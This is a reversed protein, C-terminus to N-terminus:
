VFYQNRKGKKHDELHSELDEELVYLMPCQDCAYNAGALHQRMHAKMESGESFKGGCTLCMKECGSGEGRAAHERNYHLWLSLETKFTKLHKTNKDKNDEGRKERCYECTIAKEKSHKTKIHRTLNSLKSFSGHCFHCIFNQTSSPIETTTDAAIQMPECDSTQPENASEADNDDNDDDEEVAIERNYHVTNLHELLTSQESFVEKCQTCPLMQSNKKSTQKQNELDSVAKNISEVEKLKQKVKAERKIVEEKSNEEEDDDRECLINQLNISSKLAAKRCSKRIPAHAEDTSSDPMVKQPYPNKRNKHKDKKFEKKTRKTKDNKEPKLEEVVQLQEYFKTPMFKLLSADNDLVREFFDMKNSLDEVLSSVADEAHKGNIKNEDPYWTRWLREKLLTNEKKVALFSQSAQVRTMLQCCANHDQQLHLYSATDKIITHM